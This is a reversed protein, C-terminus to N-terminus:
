AFILRFGWQGTGLGMLLLLLWLLTMEPNSVRWLCGRYASWWCWPVQLACVMALALGAVNAEAAHMFQGRVFYAFSTTMGCSPCPINFLARFSCEPLGLRQHTGYGRPDPELWVALSFGTLLFLSWAVLLLRSTSGLSRGSDDFIHHKSSIHSLLPNM